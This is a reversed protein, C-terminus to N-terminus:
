ISIVSSTRNNFGIDGFDITSGYSSIYVRSGSFWTNDYCITVATLGSISSARNNMSGITGYPWGMIITKYDSNPAAGALDYLAALVNTKNNSTTHRSAIFDVYEQKLEGTRNYEEIVGNANAFDLIEQKENELKAVDNAYSTTNIWNTFDNDNDFVHVTNNEEVFMVLEPNEMNIDSQAVEQDHYIFKMVSTSTENTNGLQVTTYVDMQKECATFFLASVLLIPSIFRLKM